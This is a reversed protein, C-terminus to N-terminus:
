NHLINVNYEIFATSVSSTSENKATLVVYNKAAHTEYDVNIVIPVSVARALIFSTSTNFNIVPSSQTDFVAINGSSTTFSTIVGANNNNNPDVIFWTQDTLSPNGSFPLGGAVDVFAPHNVYNVVLQTSSPVITATTATTVASDIIEENDTFNYTDTLSTFNDSSINIILNGKRSVFSNHLQYRVTVLQDTNTLPIKTLSTVGNNTTTATTIYTSMTASDDITVKGTVLPNYYFSSDNTSDAITRRHFYDNITKNGNSYFSIVPTSNTSTTNNDDLNVGNGVQVFYNNESVHMTRNTSTGVWIGERIISKFRNNSFIGNTPGLLMDAAYLSVGRNLNSLISNTLVPRVVTGTCVIGTYLSDFRCRNIQINECLNVDGAEIGGGKGRVSIGIGALVMGYTTTTAVDNATKFFVDQIKADLVNDLALLAKTTATTQPNLYQLTMNEICIERSRKVGDSMGATWDNGQADVTKFMSVTGTTLSLTTIEQGEGVLSTYPPLEITSSVLYNGAPIILKRRADARQWSSYTSNNFLDQIAATLTATIDVPTHSILLGFPLYDTLSVSNDLKVSISSTNAHIHTDSVRYKYTGTSAVTSTSLFSRITTGLHEIINEQDQETLIRSNNDDRAGESIRKGIYLHETDEAWGFEGPDLQPIGTVNEEGRRVQIKAIELIAM